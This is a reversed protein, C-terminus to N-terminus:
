GGRRLSLPPAAARRALVETPRDGVADVDPLRGIWVRRGHHCAVVASGGVARLSVGRVVGGPRRTEVSRANTGGRLNVVRHRRTHPGFIRDGRGFRWREGHPSLPMAQEGTGTPTVNRFRRLGTTRRGEAVAM